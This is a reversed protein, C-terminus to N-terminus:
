ATRPAASAGMFGGILLVAASAIHLYIDYGGIPVYGLLSPTFFGLVGLILLIVGWLRCFLVARAQTTAMLGMAGIIIHVLNHLGNVQLGFMTAPPTISLGSGVGPFFGVVGVILYIAGFVMAITKAM